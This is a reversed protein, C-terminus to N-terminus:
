LLLGILGKLPVIGWIVGLVVGVIQRIWYVVDLFEDQLVAFSVDVVINLLSHCSGSFINKPCSHASQSSIQHFM